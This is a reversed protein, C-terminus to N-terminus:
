SKGEALGREYAAQWGKDREALLEKIRRECDDLDGYITAGGGHLEQWTIRLADSIRQQWENRQVVYGNAETLLNNNEHYWHNGDWVLTCDKNTHVFADKILAWCGTLFRKM